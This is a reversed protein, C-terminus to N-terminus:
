CQLVTSIQDLKIMRFVTTGQINCYKFYGHCHIITKVVIVNSLSYGTYLTIHGWELRSTIYTLQSGQQQPNIRWIEGQKQENITILKNQCEVGESTLATFESIWAGFKSYGFNVSPDFYNQITASWRQVEVESILVSNTSDTLNYRKM